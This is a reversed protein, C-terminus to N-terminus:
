IKIQCRLGVESILPNNFFHLGQASTNGYLTSYPNYGGVKTWTVINNAYLGIQYSKIFNDNRSFQYSLDISRLNIYSGDVIADEAVGTFGYRIFRNTAISETPNYFDIALTNVNGQQDVGPFVFNSIGREVASQQSTGFYNLTNQTGNWIDGGKQIDFVFSLSFSKWELSNSFGINYDPNPDGIISPTQDVIPFGFRDIIMQGEENRLYTNGVIVGVAEGAILNKSVDTFGAIPVQTANNALSLVKNRYTSFSLKPQYSFQRGISIRSDISLEFGRNRIDAVNDLRFSNDELIPFVSGKTTSNYYNADISLYSGAVYFTSSLGVEFHEKKELDVAADIFLDNNSNYRMSQPAALLLSNHSLNNYYLNLDNVDRSISSFLSLRNLGYIEFIERIDVRLNIAPLFWENSQISSYYSNNTFKIDMIDGVDYSIFHLLRLRNRSKSVDRVSMDAPNEFSFNPFISMEALSFDLHDYDYYIISRLRLPYRWNDTTYSFDITTNIQQQQISKDSAFGSRYDATGRALGFQQEQDSVSYNLQSKIQFANGLYLQNSVSAIFYKNTIANRNYELLWEPNNFGQQINFSRQTDDSLRTGQTNSFSPPTIWQNLLLNNQFGNINPQNNQIDQYSLFAKWNSDYNGNNNYSLKIRNNTNLERNYIDKSQQNWYNLGLFQDEHSVNLSVNNSNNLVTRFLSNDYAKAPQGNGNGTNVLQGNVDYPNNQGDFELTKLAPGYSFIEPAEPGFYALGEATSRGQSFTQQLDPLQNKPVYQVGFNTSFGLEYYVNEYKHTSLSVRDKEFKIKKISNFPIYSQSNQYITDANDFSLVDPIIPNKKQIANKYADSFLFQVPEYRVVRVQPSGFLAETVEIEQTSFGTYNIVLIDGLNCNISYEGDINTVTGITTGKILISAGILPEGDEDTLVGSVIGGQGFIATSIFLLGVIWLIAQKKM